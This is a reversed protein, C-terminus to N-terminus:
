TTEKQTAYKFDLLADTEITKELIQIDSESIVFGGVKLLDPKYANNGNIIVFGRDVLYQVAERVTFYVQQSSDITGKYSEILKVIGDLGSDFQEESRAKGYTQEILTINSLLHTMYLKIVNQAATM